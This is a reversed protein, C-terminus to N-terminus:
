SQIPPVTEGPQPPIPDRPPIPQPDPFPDPFVDPAPMDGPDPMGPPLPTDPGPAANLDTRQGPGFWPPAALSRPTPTHQPAAPVPHPVSM